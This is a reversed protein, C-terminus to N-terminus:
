CMFSAKKYDCSSTQTLFMNTLDVDKGPSMMMWVFLTLEAVPDGPNGIRPMSNVKLTTYESAGLILHIPLEERDDTDDM